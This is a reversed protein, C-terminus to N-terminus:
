SRIITRAGPAPLDPGEVVEFSLALAILAASLPAVGITITQHVLLITPALLLPAPAASLLARATRATFFFSLVTFFAPLMFLYSAGPLAFNTSLMLTIWAVLAGALQESANTRRLIRARIWMAIVMAFILAFVLWFTNFPVGVVFPGFTRPKFIHKLIFVLGSAVAASLTMVLLTAGLSVLILGIRARGRGIALALAVACFAATGFVFIREVRAPYRVFAGRCLTFFTADGARLCREFTENDVHALQEMVPLVCAGYHQLTRQSLNQPTDQATHYFEIGSTFAFNLGRKGVNLFETLDTDNPMRRYIDESFSAAVPLPCAEGFLHILGNNDPGTQFMLVPGRNGRAEMNVIVRLDRMLNTQERVFLNAGLCVGHVEEGDTFLVGITNRLPGRAKLARISELAVAVGTSDDAAGPGRPTSDFHAMMLVPPHGEVAGKLEGYLNTIAIGNPQGPMERPNLGLDRMGQLLYQRVRANEASGTPHPAKSIASIDVFARAASFLQAPAEPPLPAPLWFSSLGVSAAVFFIALWAVRQRNM